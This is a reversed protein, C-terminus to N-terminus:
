IISPSKPPLATTDLIMGADDILRGYTIVSNGLTPLVQTEEHYAFYITAYTVALSSGMATGTKQLWYTDDFQFINNRMVHSTSDLIMDFPYDTPLDHRHLELWSKFPPSHM